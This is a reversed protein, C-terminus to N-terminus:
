KVLPLTSVIELKSKERKNDLLLSMHEFHNSDYLATKNSDGSFRFKQYYLIRSSFFNLVKLSFNKLKITFNRDWFECMKYGGEGRGWVINTKSLRNRFDFM